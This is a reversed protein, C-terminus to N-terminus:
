DQVDNDLPVTLNKLIVQRAPNKELLAINYGPSLKMTLQSSIQTFSPKKKLEAPLKNMLAEAAAKGRKGVHFALIQRTKSHMVLWLWQDNKKNGVFSWMEDAELTYVEFEDNEALVNANLNDPLADFTQQMFELLWTMSVDFIRCIGELSVKEIRSRRIREKTDQPIIKNQPDEVFQKLRSLCQFKQKGSGNFGNKRAILAHCHPCAINITSELTLAVVKGLWRRLIV